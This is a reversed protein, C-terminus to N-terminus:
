TQVEKLSAALYLTTTITITVRLFYHLWDKTTNSYKQKNTTHKSYLLACFITDHLSLLMLKLDKSM